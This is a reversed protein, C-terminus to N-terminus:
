GAPALGAQVLLWSALQDAPEAHTDAAAVAAEGAAPPPTARDAAPPALARALAELQLLEQEQQFVSFTGVKHAPPEPRALVHLPEPADPDHIFRAAAEPVLAAVGPGAFAAFREFDAPDTTQMVFVGPTILRV